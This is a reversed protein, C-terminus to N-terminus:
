TGGTGIVPVVKGGLVRRLQRSVGIRHERRRVNPNLLRPKEQRNRPAGNSDPLVTWTAAACACGPLCTRSADGTEITRTRNARIKPGRELLSLAVALSALHDLRM